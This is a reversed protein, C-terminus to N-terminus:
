GWCMLFMEAIDKTVIHKLGAKCFVAVVVVPFLFANDVRGEVKLVETYRHHLLSTEWNGIVSTGFVFRKLICMCDPKDVCSDYPLRIHSKLSGAVFLHYSLTIWFLGFRVWVTSSVAAKTTKLIAPCVTYEEGQEGTVLTAVANSAGKSKSRIRWDNATSQSHGPHSGDAKSALM